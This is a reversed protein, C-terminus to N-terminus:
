PRYNLGYIARGIIRDVRGKSPIVRSIQPHGKAGKPISDVNHLEIWVGPQADGRVRRGRLQGIITGDLCRVNVPASAIVIKKCVPARATGADVAGVIHSHTTAGTHGTGVKILISDAHRVVTARKKLLSRPLKGSGTM